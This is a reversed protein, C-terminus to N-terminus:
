QFHKTKSNFRTLFTQFHMKLPHPCNKLFIQFLYLHNFRRFRQQYQKGQINVYLLYQYYLQQSVRPDLSPELKFSIKSFKFFKRNIPACLIYHFSYFSFRLNQISTSEIIIKPKLFNPEYDYTPLIDESQSCINLLDTLNSPM